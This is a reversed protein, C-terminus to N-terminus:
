KGYQINLACFYEYKQLIFGKILIFNRIVDNYKHSVTDIGLM